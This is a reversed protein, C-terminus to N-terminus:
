APPKPPFPENRFSTSAVFTHSGDGFFRGIMPTIFLFKYTLSITITDGPGGPNDDGGLVSTIVIDKPDMPVGVAADKVVRRISEIRSQLNGPDNPDQLQRGTVGFRGGERMAHQLTIETFFLRGFDLIGLMLLLFVPLIFSLEMLELGLM